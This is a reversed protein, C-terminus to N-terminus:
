FIINIQNAFKTMDISSDRYKIKLERTYFEKKFAIKLYTKRTLHVFYESSSSKKMKYISIKVLSKSNNKIYELLTECLQEFNKATSLLLIGDKAQVMAPFDNEKYLKNKQDTLYDQINKDTNSCKCISALFSKLQNVTSEAKSTKIQLHKKNITDPLNRLTKLKKDIIKAYRELKKELKKNQSDLRKIQNLLETTDENSKRKDAVMKCLKNCTSRTSEFDSQILKRKNELVVFSDLNIKLGMENYTQKFEEFNELLENLAIM